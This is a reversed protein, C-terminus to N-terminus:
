SVPRDIRWRLMRGGRPDSPHEFEEVVRGGNREIVVQSARNGVSTVLDAYPLGAGWAIPLVGRLAETAYGRGQRSSVTGYGIHGLVYEPLDPTGDQWRVNISGAFGGDWMWRMISPLRPVTRGDPLTVTHGPQALGALVDLLARPDQEAALRAAGPGGFWFDDFAWGDELAQVYAPLFRLDPEVLEM